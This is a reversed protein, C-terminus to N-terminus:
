EREKYFRKLRYYNREGVVKKLLGKIRNIRTNRYPLSILSAKADKIISMHTYRTSPGFKQVMTRNVDGLMKNLNTLHMKAFVDNQVWASYYGAQQAGYPYLREIAHMINGDIEGTPEAPFDEYSLDSEYFYQFAKPRLWFITGLPAVPQKDRDMNVQIGFRKALAKSNDFNILWENGLTISYIGHIPPPPALLGLRPNQVFTTIINEVFLRNYLVNEFCQYSFSEGILYPKVQTAKKDHVFCVIDYDNAYPKLGLLLSSVDRGRNPIVVVTVKRGNFDKFAQEIKNKKEDNNTTIYIDAEIPMMDAYCKCYDILDLFYLHMFLAIRFKESCNNPLLAETPLIYNLQMRDKIDSMNATRLITEWILDVDYSSENRIYKFLEYCPQGCTVDLYEEYYNYFTKRKFIPCGKEAILEKPYIMLPYEAFEKLDETNVYVDSKFGKDNFDKTFIAEHNCISDGYSNIEPMEEWYKQFEKSKLMSSRVAMFGTQIHEPILHYKCKGYPDFDLGYHKTIGWFDLDRIAMADFMEKLPYIPGMITYNLLVVEDFGALTNWGYSQLAEKYAWVDLGINERELIHPTIAKLAIRGEASISGNSVILLEDLNKVLDKLLYPIYSDIIGEPDYFFYIGLRKILHANELKM